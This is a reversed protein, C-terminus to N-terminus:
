KLAEIMMAEYIERSSAFEYSEGGRTLCGWSHMTPTNDGIKVMAETPELIEKLVVDALEALSEVSWMSCDFDSGQFACIIRDKIESM